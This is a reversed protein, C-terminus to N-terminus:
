AFSADFVCTFTRLPIRETIWSYIRRGLEILLGYFLLKFTESANGRSFMAAIISFMGLGGLSAM